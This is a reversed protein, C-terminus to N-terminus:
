NIREQEKVRQFVFQKKVVATYNYTRDRAAISGAFEIWQILYNNTTKSYIYFIPSGSAGNFTYPTLIINLSDVNKYKQIISYKEKPATNGIYLSDSYTDESFPKDLSYTPYRYSIAKVSANQKNKNEKALEEISYITVSNKNIANLFFTDMKYAYVDPNEYFSIPKGREKINRIDLTYWGVRGKNDKVRIRFFDAVIEEQKKLTTNTQTFTHYATLFFLNGSDRIFFGTTIGTIHGKNLSDLKYVCVM